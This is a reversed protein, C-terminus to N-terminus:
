EHLQFYLQFFQSFTVTVEKRHKEVVIVGTFISTITLALEPAPASLASSAANAGVQKAAVTSNSLDREGLAAM